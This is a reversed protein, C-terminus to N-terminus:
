KIKMFRLIIALVKFTPSSGLQKQVILEYQNFKEVLM